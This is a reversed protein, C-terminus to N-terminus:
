RKKYEKLMDLLKGTEPLFNESKIKEELEGLSLFEGKLIEKPDLKLDDCVFGYVQVNEKDENDIRKQFSGILFPSSEVGCEEYSEVKVAEEYSQGSKVHGGFVISWYLPYFDKDETRQNVFVQGDSDFVYWLVSRHIYGKTHADERTATGIVSDNDDVIDVLESM